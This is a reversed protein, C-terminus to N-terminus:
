TATRVVMDFKGDFKREPPLERVPTSCATQLKPMGEVEVMCMRCSGVVSLAPHYCYHPIEIGARLAADLVMTGDPVELEHEDIKLLPM